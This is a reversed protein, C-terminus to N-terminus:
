GIFNEIKKIQDELIMTSNIVVEQCNRTRTNYKLKYANDFPKYLSSPLLFFNPNFKRKMENLEILTSSVPEYFICTNTTM